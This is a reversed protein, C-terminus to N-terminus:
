ELHDLHNALLHTSCREVFAGPNRQLLGRLFVVKEERGPDPETKSLPRILVAPIAALYNIMLDEFSVAAM